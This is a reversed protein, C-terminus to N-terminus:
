VKWILTQGGKEVVNQQMEVCLLFLTAARHEFHSWGAM